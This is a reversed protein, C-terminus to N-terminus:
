RASAKRRKPRSAELLKEIGAEPIRWHGGPGLRFAGDFLGRECMRRIEREDCGLRQAVASTTWITRARAETM